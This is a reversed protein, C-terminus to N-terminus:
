DPIILHFNPGIHAQSSLTGFTTYKGALDTVEIWAVSALADGLVNGPSMYVKGSEALLFARTASYTSPMMMDKILEGAPPNIEDSGAFVYSARGSETIGIVVPTRYGACVLKVYVEGGIGVGGGGITGDAKIWVPSLTNFPSSYVVHTADIDAITVPVGLTETSSPVRYWQRTGSTLTEVLIGRVDGYAQSFLSVISSSPIGPLSVQTWTGGSNVLSWGRWLEGTDTLVLANGEYNPTDGGAIKIIKGTLGVPNSKIPAVYSSSVVWLNNATDLLLAPTDDACSAVDIYGTGESNAPLETMLAIGPGSTSQGSAHYLSGPPIPANPDPAETKFAVVDSWASVAGASNYRVRAIYDTEFQLTGSAWSVLNVTDALSESVPSAFGTDAATTIQWDSSVHTANIGSFATGILTPTAGVDTAGNPPALISPQDVSEPPTISAKIEAGTAKYSAGARQVLMLDNDLLDAMLNQAQLRYSAGARSVLFEDTDLVDAM